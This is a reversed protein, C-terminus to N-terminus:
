IATNTQFRINLIFSVPLHHSHIFHFPKGNKLIFKHNSVTFNSEEMYLSFIYLEATILEALRYSKPNRHKAADHMSITGINRSVNCNGGEFYTHPQLLFNNSTCDESGIPTLLISSTSPRPVSPPKEVCSAALSRFGLNYTTV